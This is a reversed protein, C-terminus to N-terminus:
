FKRVKVPKRAWVIMKGQGNLLMEASPTIYFNKPNDLELSEFVKQFESRFNKKNNGPTYAAIIYLVDQRPTTSLVSDVAETNQIIKTLIYETLQDDYMKTAM